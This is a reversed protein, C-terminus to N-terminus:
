SERVGIYVTLGKAATTHISDIDITIIDGVALATTTLDPPTSATTTTKEGTDFDLKNTTMITTGNINIDVVMTGTTGATSNTAYLYFPTLDSQLITGAIPSVFDGAINTATACDTTAEVLNFTLWRINRKSAVFQDVPMARTTDTGTDIEATTALELKGAATKSGADVVGTANGSSLTGVTVLNSSGAWTSLATNEVNDLSLDTKVETYSRGELGSATFKAYDNDVVSASDIVVSNTNAIGFTLADQKAIMQTVTITNGDVSNDELTLDEATTDSGSLTQGGTRGALLAYQTHDDDGLGALGGHDAATTGAKLESTRWDKYDEGDSTQVFRANNVSTFSTKGELIFTAVPLFEESPFTSLVTGIETEAGVSATAVTSYETIGTIVFPDKGEDNSAFLHVLVYNGSSIETLQWTAGTYENYQPLPTAGVPYSYGANTAKIWAGDAGSRYFYDVGTTSVIANTVTILDEDTLFGADVGFQSHAPLSGNGTANVTNPALGDLFQVGRTFHLYSHTDPSMLIGHREDGLYYHASTTANWYVYAVLCKNRIIDDLQASTPTAITSLTDEDYYIVHLGTVDTIDVTELTSIEYKDGLQYFHFPYSSASITFRLNGDDFAISTNTREASPFGNTDTVEVTINSTTPDVVITGASGDQKGVAGIITVYSGDDPKTMTWDGSGDAELYLVGSFGTTNLGGVEGLRTVYGSTGNEITHTAMAVLRCKDKLKADALDVTPLGTGVDVGTPYVIKGNAIDSGSDNYVQILVEQGMNVTVDSENNYYSLAKKTSDYFVRGESYPATPTTNHDIYETNVIANDGMDVNGALLNNATRAQELTVTHPNATSAIHTDIQAHTNSGVNTLAATHDLQGGGTSGEHNHNANTFDGITPTTLTKNTLTQIDTTGVVDGTVGHVGSSAAVHTDIQAHTNSGIDQLNTHSRATIQTINDLTIDNAVNADPLVGTVDDTLDIQNATIEQNSLTLYDKGALTVASHRAATNAAVDTNNSVETDFDSITSATQTGTHNARALYYSGTQDDLLDSNLNSVKTTSSVTLPATGTAVVSTVTNGSIAGTGMDLNDNATNPVITNGTRDWFDESTIADDVYKKTAAHLDATPAGSLTLIGTMTDGSKNVKADLETQLDTQDSLTGTISGWSVNIIPSNFEVTISQPNITATIDDSAITAIINAM